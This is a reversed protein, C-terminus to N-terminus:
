HLLKATGSKYLQKGKAGGQTHQSVRAEAEAEHAGLREASTHRVDGHLMATRESYSTKGHEGVSLAEGQEETHYGSDELRGEGGDADTGNRHQFGEWGRCPCHEPSTGDHLLVLISPM